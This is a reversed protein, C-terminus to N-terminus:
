VLACDNPDSDGSTPPLQQQGLNLELLASLREAADPGLIVDLQSLLYLLRPEFVKTLLVMAAAAKEALVKLEERSDTIRGELIRVVKSARKNDLRQWDLEYGVEKEIEDREAHLSDFLRKNRGADGTDIYLEIRFTGNRGFAFNLLALGGSISKISHWNAGDPSIATQEFGPLKRLEDDVVNYFDIYARQREKIRSFRVLRESMNVGAVRWGVDLWQKSQVHGMSDNAWWSRNKYASVPLEGGIIEEIATFSSAIVDKESSQEQLWIALPAYRSEGPQPEDATPIIMGAELEGEEEGVSSGTELISPSISPFATRIAEEHEVLLNYCDRLQRSQHTGIERFHALDNRTSRVSDLLTTMAAKQLGFVGELSVWNDKRLFLSIYNALTLEDFTAPERKDEAFKEFAEAIVSEDVQSGGGQQTQTLYLRLANTFNERVGLNLEFVKAVINEDIQNGPKPQAKGLCFRVAKVFNERLTQNVNSVAQIAENLRQEGDSKSFFALQVYEKLISEINEVLIIDRARQRFYGTMDHTTVVQVLRGDEDVICAFPDNMEDFLDLLDIDQKFIPPKKLLAHKIQLGDLGENYNNLANLISDSAIFGVPRRESDVVPLQSYGHTLMLKVAEKLSNGLRVSIVLPKGSIFEEVTATM